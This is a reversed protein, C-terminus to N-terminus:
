EIRGCVILWIERILYDSPKNKSDTMYAKILLLLIDIMKDQNDKLVTEM